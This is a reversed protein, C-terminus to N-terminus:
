KRTRPPPGRIAALLGAPPCAKQRNGGCESALSAGRSARARALVPNPSSFPIGVLSGRAVGRARRVPHASRYSRCKPPRPPAASGFRPLSGRRRAPPRAPRWGTRLLRRTPAGVRASANPSATADRWRRHVIVDRRTLCPGGAGAVASRHQDNIDRASGGEFAQRDLRRTRNRVVRDPE